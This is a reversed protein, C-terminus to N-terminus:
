HVAEVAAVGSKDLQENVSAMLARDGNSLAAAMEADIRQAAGELRRVALSLRDDGASPVIEKAFEAVRAAYAHADLPIVDANALRLAALGWLQVLAM